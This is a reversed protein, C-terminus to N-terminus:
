RDDKKLEKIPRWQQKEKNFYKKGDESYIIEEDRIVYKQMLENAMRQEKLLEKIDVVDKKTEEVVKPLEAFTTITKSSIVIAGIVAPIGAIWMWNQYWIKKKM